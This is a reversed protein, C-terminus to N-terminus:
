WLLLAITALRASFPLLASIMSIVAAKEISAAIM